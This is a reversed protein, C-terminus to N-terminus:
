ARIGSLAPCDALRKDDLPRVIRIRPYGMDAPARRDGGREWQYAIASPAASSRALTEPCAFSVSQVGRDAASARDAAAGRAGTLRRAHGIVRAVPTMTPSVAAHILASVSGTNCDAASRIRGGEGSCFSSTPASGLPRGSFM